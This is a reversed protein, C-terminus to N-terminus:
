VPQLHCPPARSWTRRPRRCSGAGASRWAGGRSRRAALVLAGALMAVLVSTHAPGHRRGREALARLAADQDREVLLGAHLPPPAAVGESPPRGAQPHATAAGSGLLGLLVALVLLASAPRQRIPRM